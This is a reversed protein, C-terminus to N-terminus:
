LFMLRVSSTFKQWETLTYNCYPIWEGEYEAKFGRYGANRNMNVYTLLM